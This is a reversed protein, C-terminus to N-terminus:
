SKKRLKCQEARRSVRNRCEWDHKCMRLGRRYDLWTYQKCKLDGRPQEQTERALTHGTPILAYLLLSLIIVKV